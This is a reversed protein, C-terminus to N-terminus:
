TCDAGAYNSNSNYLGTFYISLECYIWRGFAISNQKEKKILKIVSSGKKTGFSVNTKYFPKYLLIEQNKMHDKKCIIAIIIFIPDWKGKVSLKHTQENM